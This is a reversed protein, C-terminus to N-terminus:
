EPGDDLTSGRGWDPALELWRNKWEGDAERSSEQPM